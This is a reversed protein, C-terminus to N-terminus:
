RDKNLVETFSLGANLELRKLLKDAMLSAPTWIGGGLSINDKALCVASEALMKSTSGYGPDMDGYVKGIIDNSRNYPHKALFRFDYFGSQREELNPGEGPSPLFPNVLFRLIDVALMPQLSGMIYGRLRASINGIKKSLLIAEDYRFDKGYTFDLLANTRRVIRTNISAMIFPVTWCDFDKDFIARTQDWSDLGRPAGKPILAYPDAIQRLLNKNTKVEDIINLMSAITGGSFGGRFRKIRCKVHSARLGYKQLMLNQVFWVGLDSPISDFACSNVIRVNRKIALEHYDNIIKRIWQVEGTIDCYDTNNHICAEVLNTGYKAYPGVTSCIVKAKKAMINLSEVDFSDARIIDINQGCSELSLDKSIAELKCQDRGAIAWKLSGISGYKKSLYEAVLSGTFGSAGFVIVDYKQDLDQMEM